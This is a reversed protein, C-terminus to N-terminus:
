DKSTKSDNNHGCSDTTANMGCHSCRSQFHTKIQSVLRKDEPWFFMSQLTDLDVFEHHIIENDDYAYQMSKDTFCRLDLECLYLTVVKMRVLKTSTVKKGDYSVKFLNHAHQHANLGGYGGHYQGLNPSSSFRSLSSSSRRAAVSCSKAFM